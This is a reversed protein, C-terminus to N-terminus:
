DRRCLPQTNWTVSEDWSCDFLNVISGDSRQAWCENFDLNYEIYRFGLNHAKQKCVAQKNHTSEPDNAYHYAWVSILAVAVILIVGIIMTIKDYTSLTM